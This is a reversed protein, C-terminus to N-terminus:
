KRRAEDLLTRVVEARSPTGRKRWEANLWKLTAAGVRVHIIAGEQTDPAKRPRGRPKSANETNEM